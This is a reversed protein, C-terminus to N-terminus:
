RAARLTLRGRGVDLAHQRGRSSRRVRRLHGLKVRNARHKVRAMRVFQRTGRRYTELEADLNERADVRDVEAAAVANVQARVASLQQLM